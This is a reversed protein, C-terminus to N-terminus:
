NRRFAQPTLGIVDRFRANFTSLDGFGATYAIAAIQSSTTRLALAARRLRMNLLLQYPTVGLAQRFSRLFHYKSMGARHALDALSLPADANEEIHRVVDGIRRRDRASPVTRIPGGDSLLGLVTEALAISLEEFYLSGAGRAGAEVNVVHSTLQRLAPLMTTPFRFRHSGAAGSAIEEFFPRSFHFSICRDGAAHDHGCEFCAGANGLLLSGPYMLSRGNESRYVFSGSLVVAIAVNGHQEEFARDEPGLECLVDSVSWDEGKALPRVTPTRSHASSPM